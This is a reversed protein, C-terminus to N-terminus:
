DECDGWVQSTIQTELYSIKPHPWSSDCIMSLFSEDDDGSQGDIRWHTIGVKDTLAKVSLGSLICQRM